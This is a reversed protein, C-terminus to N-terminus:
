LAARFGEVFERVAQVPDDRREALRRMLASAFIVADAHRGVERAQEPTSIGFGVAVPLAVSTRLRDVFPIVGAELSARVGTVGTVSVAYVFGSASRLGELHEATSTPAAMPILHLRRRRAAQRMAASEVWPLDPIILGAAGAARAEDLFRETGRAMVPNLYTMVLVPVQRAARELVPWFADLTFGAALAEESAAQLIPGDALPDSFPIGVELADAGGLVAAAVLDPLAELTPWGATLYPMLAARGAQRCLALAEDLAAHPDSTRISPSM